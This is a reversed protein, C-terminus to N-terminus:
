SEESLEVALNCILKLQKFRSSSLVKERQEDSIEEAHEEINQVKQCINIKLNSFSELSKDKIDILKGRIAENWYTEENQAIAELIESFDEDKLSLGEASSRTNSKLDSAKSKVKESQSQDSCNAISVALLFAFLSKFVLPLQNM